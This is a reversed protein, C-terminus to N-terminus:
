TRPPSPWWPSAKVAARQSLTALPSSNVGAGCAWVTECVYQLFSRSQKGSKSTDRHAGRM